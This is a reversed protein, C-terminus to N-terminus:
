RNEVIHLFQCHQCDFSRNNKVQCDITIVQKPNLTSPDIKAMPTFPKPIGMCPPIPPSNFIPPPIVRDEELSMDDLEEGMIDEEYDAEPYLHNEKIIKRLYPHIPKGERLDFVAKEVMMEEDEIDEPILLPDGPHYDNYGDYYSM